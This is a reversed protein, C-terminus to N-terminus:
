FIKQSLAWKHIYSENVHLDGLGTALETGPRNKGHYDSGGSILLNNKDCFSLLFETQDKSFRSYYCEFGDPSYEEVIEKIHKCVNESYMFFHAIFALGGADHVTNIIDSPSPRFQSLDINLPSDPNGSEMRIFKQYDNFSEADFFYKKNEEFKIISKYIFPRAYMTDPNFDEPSLDMKCGLAKYKKYTMDFSNSQSQRRPLYSKKIFEDIKATDIGYGLIEITEGKYDTTLETGPLIKGSFAKRTKEDTLQEYAKVSNHDTISILDLGKSQANKLLTKVDDSGDSCKTHIHLDTM